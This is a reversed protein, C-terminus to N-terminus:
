TALLGLANACDNQFNLDRLTYWCASAGDREDDVDSGEAADTALAADDVTLLARPSVLLVEAVM